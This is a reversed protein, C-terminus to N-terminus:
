MYKLVDVSDIIIKSACDIDNCTNYKSLSFRVSSKAEIESLGMATLVHSPLQEHSRCASGASACVGFGDLMLVLSESDIGDFRINITKGPQLLKGNVHVIDGLEDKLKNYFIQKLTSLTHVTNQRQEVTLECAKAFGVIGAVNETGGRLGFEQVAGGNIMPVIMSPNKVYLCGVGKPGYIKHSSISAFDCNILGVDVNCSSMAQVCDTHFLIGNRHCMDAISKVDNNTGTENNQYMVSVLGTNPKILNWISHLEVECKDNVGIREVSFGRSEELFESARMVSDHEVASTLIHKKEIAELYPTLSRFVMNNSETGGSTFIIHEPTTGISKAVVDRADDIAKRADRGLKYLTGANGYNYKLWPMMVSLVEDDIKTTSANDLYIM